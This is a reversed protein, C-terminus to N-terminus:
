SILCVVSIEVAIRRLAVSLGRVRGRRRDTLIVEGFFVELRAGEACNKRWLAFVQLIRKDGGGLVHVFMFRDSERRGTCGPPVASGSLRVTSGSRPQAAQVGLM